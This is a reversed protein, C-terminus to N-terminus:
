GSVAKMLRSPRIANLLVGGLTTPKLSAVKEATMLIEMFESQKNLLDDTIENALKIIAPKQFTKKAAKEIDEARVLKSNILLLRDELEELPAQTDQKWTATEIQYSLVEASDIKEDGELLTMINTSDVEWNLTMRELEYEAIQNNDLGLAEHLDMLMKPSYLSIFPSFPALVVYAIVRLAHKFVEYISVDKAPIEKKRLFQILQPFSLIIAFPIKVTMKFLNSFSHAIDFAFVGISGIARCKWSILLMERKRSHDLKELSAQSPEEKNIVETKRNNLKGSAATQDM